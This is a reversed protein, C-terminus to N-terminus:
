LKGMDSNLFVVSIHKGWAATVLLQKSCKMCKWHLRGLSSAVSLVIHQENSGDMLFDHIMSVM